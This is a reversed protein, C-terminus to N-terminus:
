GGNRFVADFLEKKDVHRQWERHRRVSDMRKQLPLALFRATDAPGLAKMLVGVAAQALRADDLPITSKM